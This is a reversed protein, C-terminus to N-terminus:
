PPPRLHSPWAHEALHAQRLGERARFSLVAIANPNSGLRRAVQEHTEGLVVTHWLVRRWAPRLRGFARRIPTAELRSLVDDEVDESSPMDTGLDDVPIEGRGRRLADVHANRVATYLYGRFNSDPGHGKLMVRFVRSFGEAVRDPAQDAGAFRAAYDCAGAYHRRFLVDFADSEGRRVAEVLEADSLHQV